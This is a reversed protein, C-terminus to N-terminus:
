KEFEDAMMGGIQVADQKDEKQAHTTQEPPQHVGHVGDGDGNTKCPQGKEIAGEQQRDNRLGSSPECGDRAPTKEAPKAADGVANVQEVVGEVKKSVADKKM